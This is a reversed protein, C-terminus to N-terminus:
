FSESAGLPTPWVCMDAIWVSRDDLGTLRLRLALLRSNSAPRPTAERIIREVVARSPVLECEYAGFTLRRGEDWSQSADSAADDHVRLMSQMERYVACAEYQM